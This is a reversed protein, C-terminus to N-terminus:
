SGLGLTTASPTSFVFLLAVVAFSWALWRLWAFVITSM